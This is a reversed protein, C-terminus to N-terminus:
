TYNDVYRFSKTDSVSYLLNQIQKKRRAEKLLRRSREMALQQETRKQNRKEKLWKKFARESGEREQLYTVHEQRKLEEIKRERVREKKKRKLWLNYAELPDKEEDPVPMVELHKAQQIRREEVSQEKKKQIWAKFAIENDKRKLLEEEKKREEEEKKLKMKREYMRKQIEKQEPSLCYTTNKSPLGASQVRRQSNTRHGPKIINAASSPRTKPQTPPQPLYFHSDGFANGTPAGVVRENPLNGLSSPQQNKRESSQLEAENSIPPLFSKNEIDGLTVLEFKGDKEILIKRNKPEEPGGNEERIVDSFHLQSLSDVIDEDKSENEHYEAPPVELDVLNDKFKLKKQRNEDIIETQLLKNAEEIKETIYRRAEEDETDNVEYTTRAEEMTKKSFESDTISNYKELSFPPINEKESSEGNFEEGNKQLDANAEADNILWDLDKEFNDDYEYNAVGDLDPDDMNDSM